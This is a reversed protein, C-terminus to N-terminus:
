RNVAIFTEIKGAPTGMTPFVAAPWSVSVQAASTAINPPRVYMIKARFTAGAPAPPDTTGSYLGGVLQADNSFFLTDPAYLQAWDGHLEFASIQEKSSQGPLPPTDARLHTDIKTIIDKATAQEIGSQQTKPAAALLGLVAVLCFTAIALAMSVPPLSFAATQRFRPKLLSPNLFALPKM